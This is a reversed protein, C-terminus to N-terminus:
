PPHFNLPIYWFVKSAAKSLPFSILFFIAFGSFKVRQLFQLQLTNCQLSHGKSQLIYINLAYSIDYRKNKINLASINILNMRSPLM